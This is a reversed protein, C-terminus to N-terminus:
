GLLEQKFANFKQSLEQRTDYKILYRFTFWISYFLGILEFIPQLLPLDNIADLLAIAVKVTVFASLILVLTILGRKNNNFISGLYEPLQNLFELIQRSIQQWQSEPEKVPPLKPLSDQPSSYNGQETQRAQTEMM